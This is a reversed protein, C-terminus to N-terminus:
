RAGRREAVALRYLTGADELAFRAQSILLRAQALQEEYQLLQFTTILALRSGERAAAYEQEALRVVDRARLYRARETDLARVTARVDARVASLTASRTYRASEFAAEARQDVAEAADNRQFLSTSLGVSLSSNRLDGSQNYSLFSTTPATGGYGYAAILDLRPRRQSRAQDTRRRGADVEFMAAAVDGRQAMAAAEADAVLPIDPVVLTDSTTHARAAQLLVDGRADEGYVLFLLREAADIRLRTAEFLQTERTALGRESTLVDLATSVDRVRLAVNRDLIARAAAVSQRVVNENGEAQRLAWYGREVLAVTIDASREYRSRAAVVSISAADVYGYFGARGFGRLLPQVLSLSLSSANSTAFPQTSTVLFPDSSVKNHRVSLALASGTPLVTGLSASNVASQLTARPSVGMVDNARSGFESGVTLSPDFSGRALLLDASAFQPGLAAARLDINQRLAITVLEPLSLVLTDSRLPQQGYTSHVITCLAVLVGLATRRAPPAM